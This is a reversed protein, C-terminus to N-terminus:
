IIKGLGEKKEEGVLLRNIANSSDTERKRIARFHNLLNQRTQGSKLFAVWQNMGNKDVRPYKLVNLYLFEIFEEDNLGEPPDIMPDQPIIEHPKDWTQSRDLPKVNDLIYEWQKALKDWDYNEEACQRAEEGMKERLEDNTLYKFLLDALAKVDPHARKCSTEPEYYFSRIPIVDGGKNVTYNKPDVDKLHIYESPFRGKESMASYDTVLTPTGCAKAEQISMGDGECITVQAFIDSLAFVEALQERTYGTSTDPTTATNQGCKECPIYIKLGMGRNEVPKNHINIAYSIFTHGCNHCLFTNLVSNRCAKSYYELGYWNNSMREIHRPYDYSYANDPWSSHLLLASKDIIPNGKYKEKMIAFADIADPFLKRAQNRVAVLIVKIDNKCGLWKAKLEEKNRPIFTKLDVGPRMPKPYLKLGGYHKLTSVGFDSYALVLDMTRYDNIWEEKQPEADCCVLWLTKFYSRFPSDQIWTFMWNDRLDLVIDPKFDACVADFRGHGFQWTNQGGCRPSQRRPDHFAQKEEETEPLVGYFKWRDKIFEHVRPDTSIAYSGIEAIEFRGTAALRPLLERYYTSFGTNLFSAEGSFLIRKKM